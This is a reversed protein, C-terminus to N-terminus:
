FNNISLLTNIQNFAHEDRDKVIKKMKGYFLSKALEYNKNYFANHFCQFILDYKYRVRKDKVILSVINWHYNLSAKILSECDNISPNIRSDKLLIKVCTYHGNEAALTLAYSNDDSPDVREDKLLLQLIKSYGNECAYKVCVQLFVSPDSRGDELLLKVITYYGFSCAYRIAWNKEYCPKINPNKLMEKFLQINNEGVSRKFKAQETENRSHFHKKYKLM